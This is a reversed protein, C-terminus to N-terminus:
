EKLSQLQFGATESWEMELEGIPAPKVNFLRCHVAFIPYKDDNFIEEDGYYIVTKNMDYNEITGYDLIHVTVKANLTFDMVQGRQLSYDNSAQTEEQFRINKKRPPILVKDGAQLGKKADM